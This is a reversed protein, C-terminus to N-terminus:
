GGSQFMAQFVEQHGAILTPAKPLDRRLCFDFGFYGNLMEGNPVGVFLRRKYGEEDVAILMMDHPKGLAARQAEFLERIYVDNGVDLLRSAWLM